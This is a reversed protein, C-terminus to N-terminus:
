LEIVHHKLGVVEHLKRATVTAPQLHASRILPAIDDVSDFQGAPDVADFKEARRCRKDGPRIARLHPFRDSAGYPEMFVLQRVVVIPLEPPVRVVAIDSPEQPEKGIQRKILNGPEFREFAILDVGCLLCKCIGRCRQAAACLRRCGGGRRGACGKGSVPDPLVQRRDLNCGPM